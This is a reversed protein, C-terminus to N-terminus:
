KQKGRCLKIYVSKLISLWIEKFLLIILGFEVVLLVQGILSDFYITVASGTVLCWGIIHKEDVVKLRVYKRTDIVRYLYVIFYSVCTAIAAGSIGFDPILILNLILNIIAGSMGSLLFGASDKRVVYTTAVFSGITMFIFGIILYPTYKWAIYYDPAVYLKLFPKMVMMLGSGVCLVISVLRNYVSNNYEDKDESDAEKIASYSWAQNFISTITSLLTPIKYSVAYIGNAAIGVMTTIMLRDASNMVWWMLSNPILALSYAVMKRGLEFDIKEKRNVPFIKGVIIAYLATIINALIYAALYGEVGKHLVLLFLINFGAICISQIINGFSYELLKEKGRLYCLFFQSYGMSLVYFFLYTGYQELIGLIKTVPIIFLNMISFFIIIILGINKITDQRADRDLMFRMVAEGINLSLIPVIVTAVTFILDTIGYESTSLINTYLPVLFFSIMKTGLNGIAFILTNKLLYKNRGEKDM